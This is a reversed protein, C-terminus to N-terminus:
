QPSGALLIDDFETVAVDQPTRLGLGHRAADM